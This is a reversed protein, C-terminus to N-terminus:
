EGLNGYLGTWYVDRSFGTKNIDTLKSEYAKQGM